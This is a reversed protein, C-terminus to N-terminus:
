CASDNRILDLFASNVPTGTLDGKSDVTAWARIEHGIGIVKGDVALHYSVRFRRDGEPQVEVEMVLESDYRAPAKFDCHAQVIPTVAGFRKRLERQSLGRSRLLRQFACDFWYFYNPYFVIGAADCDGCEITVVTKFV